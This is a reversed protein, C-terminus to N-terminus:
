IVLALYPRDRSGLSISFLYDWNPQDDTDCHDEVHVLDDAQKLM